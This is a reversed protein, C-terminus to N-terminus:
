GGAAGHLACFVGELGAPGRDAFRVDLDHALADRVVEEVEALLPEEVVVVTARGEAIAAQVAEPGVAFSRPHVHATAALVTAARSRAGALEAALHDALQGASEWAPLHEPVRLVPPSPELVLAETAHADGGIVLACWHRTRALQTIRLRAEELARARLARTRKDYRERQSSSEFARAPSARAPGRYETWDGKLSFERGELECARGGASEAIRVRDLRADVIGVPRGEGFARAIPIVDARSAVTVLTSVECPLAFRFIEGNSLTAVLGHAAGPLRPDALAAAEDALASLPPGGHRLAARIETEAADGRAALVTAVGHDDRLLALRQLLERDLQASAEITVNKM